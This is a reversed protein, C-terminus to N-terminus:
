TEVETQRTDVWGVGMAIIHEIDYALPNGVVAVRDNRQEKEYFRQSNRHRALRRQDSGGRERPTSREADGADDNERHADRSNQECEFALDDGVGLPIKAHGCRTLGM